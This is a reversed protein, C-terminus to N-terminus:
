VKGQFTTFAPLYTVSIASGVANTAIVAISYNCAWECPAVPDAKNLICLFRRNMNLVNVAQCRHIWICSKAPPVPNMVSDNMCLKLSYDVPLGGTYSSASWFM